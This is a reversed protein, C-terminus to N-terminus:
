CSSSKYVGSLVDSVLSVLMAHQAPSCMHVAASLPHVRPDSRHCRAVTEATSLGKTLLTSGDEHFCLIKSGFLTGDCPHQLRWGFCLENNM